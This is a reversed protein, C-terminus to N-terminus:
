LRRRSNRNRKFRYKRHGVTIITDGDTVAYLGNLRDVKQNSVGLNAADFLSGSDRKVTWICAGQHFTPEGLQCILDIEAPRIGRQQCRLAAHRTLKM